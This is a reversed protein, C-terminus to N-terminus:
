FVAGGIIFVREEERRVWQIIKNASQALAARSTNAPAVTYLEFLPTSWALAISLASIEHHVKLSTPKAHLSAHLRSYLDLLRRRELAGGFYPDYSPMTFQVNGRSKYLFHRLPSGPVIDTCRPRGQKVATHIAAISGNRQLSQQVHYAPLMSTVRLLFSKTM